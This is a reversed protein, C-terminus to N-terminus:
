GRNIALRVRVKPSVVRSRRMEFSRSIARDYRSLPVGMGRARPCLQHAGSWGCLGDGFGEFEDM